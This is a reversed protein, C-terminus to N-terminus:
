KNEARSFVFENCGIGGACTVLRELDLGKAHYFDFIEEPKAVEFPYGGVWDIVDHWPSMGRVNSYNKWTQLPTLNLLDRVFTPGWLRIFAPWLILFRLPGPLQNFWRKIIKWFHSTRGQDNYIAIYVLSDPKTFLLTNELAKWMDGSHHLVGWSYIVDFQGTHKVYEPDLISGQEIVWDPDGNFYRDRLQRTCDVSEPDYDFSHVRAGMRRAALSFLGSGSGIDLFTRGSLDSVGLM